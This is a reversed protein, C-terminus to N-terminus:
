TPKKPPPPKTKQKWTNITWSNKLQQWLLLASYFLGSWHFSKFIEAVKKLLINSARSLFPSKNKSCKSLAWQLWSCKPSLCDKQEKRTRLKASSEQKWLDSKHLASTSIWAHQDRGGTTVQTLLWHFYVKCLLGTSKVLHWFICAHNRLGQATVIVRSM